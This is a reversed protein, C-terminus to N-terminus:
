DKPRALKQFAIRDHIPVLFPDRELLFIRFYSLGNRISRQIEGIADDHQGLGALIRSKYYAKQSPLEAHDLEVSAIMQLQLNANVTDGLLAYCHGMRSAREIMDPWNTPPIDEALWSKIADELDGLFFLGYGRAEQQRFAKNNWIDPSDHPIDMVANGSEWAKLKQAYELLLDKKGTVMLESCINVLLQDNTAKLGTFEFVGDDTYKQYYAPILETSDMRILALMHFDALARPMRAFSQEDILKHVAAHNGLRYNAFAQMTLRWSILGDGDAQLRVDYEALTELVRKPDNAANYSAAATFNAHIDSPDMKFKEYNLRAADVFRHEQAAAIGDFHLREFKTFLHRKDALYNQMELAKEFEGLNSYLAWARFLPPFFSSDMMFANDMHAIAETANITYLSLGKLYEEYAEYKPPDQSFQVHEKVVWYSMIEESVDELLAMSSEPGGELQFTRLVEGSIVDTIEAIVILRSEALYYRGHLLLDIGSQEAFKRDFTADQQSESFLHKINASNVVNAEQTEMLGRTIWDSLMNGYSALDSSNTQNKFSLVTIRKQRNEDSISSSSFIRSNNISGIILLLLVLVGALWTIPKQFWRKKLHAKINNRLAAKSPVVLGENSVAFVEIPDKVNKLAFIGLSLTDFEDQNRIKQCADASLLIAGPVAISEIRSSINVADGFVDSGKHVVEGIHIGIRLPVIPEKQFELQMMCACKVADITSEFLILSGDGYTKIVEGRCAEVAVITTEEFRSLISMANGESEQMLKTYGVIDAFLIAALKRNNQNQGPM